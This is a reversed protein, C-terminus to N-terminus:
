FKNSKTGMLFCLIPVKLCIESCSLTTGYACIIPVIYFMVTNSNLIDAFWYQFLVIWVFHLGFYPFSRQSMYETARNKFDLKSKGVGILALIMFWEALAKAIGNITGFDKGSWIFMYVNAIIRNEGHILLRHLM